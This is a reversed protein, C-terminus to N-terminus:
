QYRSAISLVIDAYYYGVNMPGYARLADRVSGHKRILGALMNTGYSINFEPDYLEQMSPRAMFCPGNVCMFRSAKGDRPMVQMLGVAGDKSYADPNGGSEQLMVAAILNAEVGNQAAYTEILSCWQRVSEPYSGGLTCQGNYLAPAEVPSLEEEAPHDVLVAQEAPLPVEAMNAEPTTIIALPVTEPTSAPAPQSEQPLNTAANGQGALLPLVPGASAANLSALASQADASSASALAPRPIAILSTVFVLFVCGALIGPLLIKEISIM